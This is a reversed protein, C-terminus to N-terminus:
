DEFVPHGAFHVFVKNLAKLVDDQDSGAMSPFLPLTMLRPFLSEAVPCLGKEYGFNRRYYPHLHVLPYHLQVGIREARLARMVEDRDGRLKELNLLIVFIHWSHRVEHLIAPLTVFPSSELRERYRRALTERRELLAEARKLQSLGLACQIDTLRYNYGLDSVEYRWPCDASPRDIGHHRFRRLREAYEANDTLVAGGEGTTIPKVPHFSFVTMDALGGVRRGELQAGFAHSADEIVVLGKRRAIDSIEGMDAPHGGYDVPLIARSRGTIRREVERPDINLTDPRIDVFRPTGRCYVVANATAVFTLPTTIAEDGAALGSAACAAHLAATGNAFAVAHRGGCYGAVAGEFEAVKPGQTLWDGRLVEVVAAVDEEGTTQRAYPLWEQRVPSGGHLA